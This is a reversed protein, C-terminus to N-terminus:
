GCGKLCSRLRPACLKPTPDSALCDSYITQCRNRCDATTFAQCRNAQCLQHPGCTGCSIQGGCGDSVYGCNFSGCTPKPPPQPQICGHAANSWYGAATFPAGGCKPNFTYRTDPCIDAVEGEIGKSDRYWSALPFPDTAAETDEHSMARMIEDLSGNGCALPIMAVYLPRGATFPVGMGPLFEGIANSPVQLHRAHNGEKACIDVQYAQPPLFVNIITDGSTNPTSFCPLDQFCHGATLADCANCNPSPTGLVTNTHGNAEECSVFNFIQFMSTVAYPDHDCTNLFQDTDNSGAWQIKPVGYQTLPAFYGGDILAKTARDIDSKHMGPGAADDWHDSWYLNYIKLGNPYPLSFSHLTMDDPSSAALRGAVLPAAGSQAESEPGSEPVPVACAVATLMSGLVIPLLIKM